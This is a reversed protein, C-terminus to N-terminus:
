SQLYCSAERKRADSQLYWKTVRKMLLQLPSTLVLPWALATQTDGALDVECLGAKHLSDDLLGGFLDTEEKTVKSVKDDRPLESVTATIGDVADARASTDIRTLTSCHIM